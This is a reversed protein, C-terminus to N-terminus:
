LNDAPYSSIVEHNFGLHSQMKKALAGIRFYRWDLQLRVGFCRQSPHPPQFRLLQVGLNRLGGRGCGVAALWGSGPVAPAPAPIIPHFVCRHLGAGSGMIGAEAFFQAYDNHAFDIVLDTVSTQYTPYAVEFAGVGVGDALHERSMRLSDLALKDRDELALVPTNAMAEWRKWIDGPDLWSFFAGAATALL